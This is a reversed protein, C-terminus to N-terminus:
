ADPKRGDTVYVKKDTMLPLAAGLFAMLMSERERENAAVFAERVTKEVKLEPKCCSFDPCCQPTDYDHVSEGEVWLRLQEEPTMTGLLPKM